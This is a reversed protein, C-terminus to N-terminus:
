FCQAMADDPSVGAALYPQPVLFESAKVEDPDTVAIGNAAYWQQGDRYGLIATPDEIDDIYVVATSPINSTPHSVTQGNIAESENVTRVPYLSYDDKLVQQNADFRDVRVGVNFILDDFAFKDM